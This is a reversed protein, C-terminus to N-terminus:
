VENEGLKARLEAIIREAEERAHREQEVLREAELKAQREQEALREAVERAQKEAEKARREQEVLREAELKAQREAEARSSEVQLQQYDHEAKTLLKEGRVNYLLLMEESPVLWCELENSWMRGQEDTPIEVRLGDIYRWGRLRILKPEDRPDYSFYEKVGLEGYRTPKKTPEIDIPATIDSVIEFVIAPAPYTPPDIAYSKFKNYEKMTIGANKVLFVDPAVRENYYGKRFVNINGGVLTFMEFRYYWKLLEELYFSLNRQLVSETMDDEDFAIGEFYYVYRTSVESM